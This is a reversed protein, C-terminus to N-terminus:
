SSLVSTVTSVMDAVWIGRLQLQAERMRSRDSM